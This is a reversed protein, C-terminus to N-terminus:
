RGGSMNKGMYSSTATVKVHIGPLCELAPVGTKLNETSSFTPLYCTMNCHHWEMILLVLYLDSNADMGTHEEVNEAPRYLSSINSNITIHSFKYKQVFHNFLVRIFTLCEQILYALGLM